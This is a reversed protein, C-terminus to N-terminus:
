ARKSSGGGTGSWKEGAAGGKSGSAAEKCFSKCSRCNRCLWTESRNKKAETQIEMNMWPRLWTDGGRHLMDSQFLSARGSINSVMYRIPGWLITLTKNKTKESCATSFFSDDYWKFKKYWLVGKFNGIYGIIIQPFINKHCISRQFLKM